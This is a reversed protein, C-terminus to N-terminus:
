RLVTRLESPMYLWAKEGIVRSMLELNRRVQTRYRPRRFGKSQRYAQAIKNMADAFRVAVLESPLRALFQVLFKAACKSIRGKDNRTRQGLLPIHKNMDPLLIPILYSEVFDLDSKKMPVFSASTFRKDKCHQAVRAIVSVAQGVYVVDSGCFLFYIGPGNRLEDGSNSLGVDLFDMM